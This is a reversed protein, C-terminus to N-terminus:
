INILIPIGQCNNNTFCKSALKFAKKANNTFVSVGSIEDDNCTSKFFFLKKM